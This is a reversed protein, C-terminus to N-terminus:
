WCEKVVRREESRDYVRIPANYSKQTGDDNLTHALEIERFPVRVGPQTGNVYVKRSHPFWNAYGNSEM